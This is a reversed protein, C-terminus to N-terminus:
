EVLIPCQSKHKQFDPGSQYEKEGMEEGYNGETTPMLSVHKEWKYRTSYLHKTSYKANYVKM